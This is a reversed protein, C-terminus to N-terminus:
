EKERCYCVAEKIKRTEFNIILKAKKEYEKGDELCSAQCQRNFDDVNLYSDGNMDCGKPSYVAAVM